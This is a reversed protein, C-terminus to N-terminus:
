NVRRYVVLERKFSDQVLSQFTGEKMLGLEQTLIKDYQEPRVKITPYVLQFRACGQVLKGYSKYKQSELVIRGGVRLVQKCIEFLKYIGEDGFNMQVWKTLSLLLVTDYKQSEQSLDLQLINSVQFRVNHPYGVGHSDSSRSKSLMAVSQPPATSKGKMLHQAPLGPKNSAHNDDPQDEEESTALDCSLGEELSTKRSREEEKLWFTTATNILRYDIDIGRISKAGFHKGLQLSILGCHCGVDLVDKGTFIMRDLVILRPDIVSMRTGRKKYYDKKNGFQNSGSSTVMTVPDLDEFPVSSLSPKRSNSGSTAEKPRIEVLRPQKMEVPTTSEFLNIRRKM